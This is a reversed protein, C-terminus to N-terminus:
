NRPGDHVSEGEGRDTWGKRGGGGGKGKEPVELMREAHAQQM